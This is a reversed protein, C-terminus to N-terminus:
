SDALEQNFREKVDGPLLALAMKNSL